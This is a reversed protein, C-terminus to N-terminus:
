QQHDNAKASWYVLHEPKILTNLYKIATEVKEPEDFFEITLPLDFSLDIIKEGHTGHEGYGTIARFVTVGRIQAENKLYDIIPKLLKSQETIYIRVITVNILKM